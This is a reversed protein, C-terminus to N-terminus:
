SKSSCGLHFVSFIFDFSLFKSQNVELKENNSRETAVDLLTQEYNVALKKIKDDTIEANTREEEIEDELQNIRAEFRRKEDAVANRRISFCHIM